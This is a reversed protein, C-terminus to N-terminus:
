VGQGSRQPSNIFYSSYDINYENPDLTNVITRLYLGNEGKKSLDAMFPEAKGSIVLVRPRKILVESPEIVVCIEGTDLLALSGVPYVGMMSVFVRVLTPDLETGMKEFITRIAHDPSRGTKAYLRTSTLADYWESVAIMRTYFDQPTQHNLKPYGSLNYRMHHEFAVIAARIMSEDLEETLALTTFGGITHREMAWWDEDTYVGKKERVELPVLPLCIDYLLSILGLEALEKKSLGIHNGMKVTLISVNVPHRMVYDYRARNIAIVLLLPENDVMMDIMYQILRRLKKMEIGLNTSVRGSMEAKLSVLKDYLAMVREGVELGGEIPNISQDASNM